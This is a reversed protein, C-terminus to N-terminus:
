EQRALVVAVICLSWTHFRGMIHLIHLYSVITVTMVVIIVLETREGEVGVLM